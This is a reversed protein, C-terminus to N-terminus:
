LQIISESTARILLLGWLCWLLLWPAKSKTNKNQQGGFCMKLEIILTRNSPARHLWMCSEWLPSIVQTDNLTRNIKISPINISLLNHDYTQSSGFLFCIKRERQKHQSVCFFKKRRRMSDFFVKTM